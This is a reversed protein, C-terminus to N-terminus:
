GGAVPPWAAVIDDEELVLRDREEPQVFLGNRLVLHAREPPVSFLALLGSATTDDPVDVRVRHREAQPPLYQMLSAYLELSIRM